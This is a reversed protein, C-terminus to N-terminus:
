LEKVLAEYIEKKIIRYHPAYHRRYTESHHVAYSGSQLIRNLNAKDAEYDPLDLQMDDITKVIENWTDIWASLPPSDTQNASEIFANLFDDFSIKNKKLLCLNVRYFNGEWGIAEVDVGSCDDFSDLEQRLYGAAAITDSIIHEPGWFDQFFNKYIDQLLSAPYTQMQQRVAREVAEKDVCKGSFVPPEQAYVTGILGMIILLLSYFIKTSNM